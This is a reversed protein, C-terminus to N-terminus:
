LPAQEFFDTLWSFLKAKKQAIPKQSGAKAAPKGGAAPAAGAGGMKALQSQIKEDDMKKRRLEYDDPKPIQYTQYFHDDSVPVKESIALDIEKRLVLEELNVEKEFQFRGGEVVPLGYSRLINQFHASNLYNVVMKADSVTIQQQQRGHEKSQAYGSSQSSTTTETNGLVVVSLERNCANLLKEQLDGNANSTKGDLMEFEAQKPVLLALASGAEDLAQRAEKKTKEDYADYKIIRVPMGFIEVYQAWDALCGRKYLVYPACKLYLGLDNPKGVVWLNPVGEYPWGEEGSQEKTIKKIHPKIHKVPIERVDLETGPIFEMGKRGWLISNMLHSEVERFASSEIVIDMEDVKKGEKTQYILTKNLVADVRKQVLGTLHADLDIDHYLDFLRITQPHQIQEAAQHALRWSEITQSTRHIQQLVLQNIVLAANDSGAQKKITSKRM